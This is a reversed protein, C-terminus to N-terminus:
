DYSGRLVTGSYYTDSVTTSGITASATIAFRVFETEVNPYHDVVFSTVTVPAQTIPEPAGGNVSRFLTGGSVTYLVDSGVYDLLLESPDVAVTSGVVDLMLANRSDVLISNAMESLQRSVIREVRYQAFSDSFSLLASVSAVSLLIFLALYVLMEVMTFGQQTYTRMPNCM